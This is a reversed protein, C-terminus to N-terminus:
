FLSQNGGAEVGCVWDSSADMWDIALTPSESGVPSGEDARTNRMVESSLHGARPAHRACTVDEAM